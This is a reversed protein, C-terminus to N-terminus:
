PPLFYEVWGECLALILKEPIVKKARAVDEGQGVALTMLWALVDRDEAFHKGLLETAFRAEDSIYSPNSDGQELTLKCYDLLLSSKPM